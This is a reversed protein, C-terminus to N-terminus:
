LFGLSRQSFNRLNPLITDLQTESSGFWRLLTAAYQDVSSTPIWRGQQEWPQSGVDDPGLLALQPYTGYTARGRVSGGMVLHHNGWAHDTGGTSNPAFTRGFDSQTFTTVAGALGVGEMASQFANLADALQKLLDAHVGAQPNSAGGGGGTQVQDRHTDFGLLTAQYIQRNGTTQAGEVILKAVQYLQPALDGVFNGNADLTPEFAKDIAVQAAATSMGPLLSVLGSFRASDGLAAQHQRVHAQRLDMSATQAYMADLADKKLQNPAWSLDEPQMGNIGFTAGPPPLVLPMRVPEVGFRGIGGLSIVPDATALTTAARGGWGTRTQSITSSTQWLAQQDAHSFLSDPILQSGAPQSLFEAKTLPAFLPGLNFVPALQRANWRPLLAAMAPHLGYSSGPMSLLESRALALPGRVAAYANYRTTDTPVLMNLGDNGGDLFVCVLAKYDAAHAPRTMLMLNALTGAGLSAAMVRGSGALWRRRSASVLGQAGDFPSSSSRM